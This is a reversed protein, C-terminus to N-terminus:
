SRSTPPKPNRIDSMHSSRSEIQPKPGFGIQYNLIRNDSQITQAKSAELLESQEFRPFRHKGSEFMRNGSQCKPHKQFDFMRNNSKKLTWFTLEFLRNTWDTFQGLSWDITRIRFSGMHGISHEFELVAWTVLRINSHELWSFM